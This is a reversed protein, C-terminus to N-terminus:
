GNPEGRLADIAALATLEAHLNREDAGLAARVAEEAADLAAVYATQKDECCQHVVSRFWPGDAAIEDLVRQECARLANCICRRQCHLCFMVGRHTEGSARGACQPSAMECETLHESM